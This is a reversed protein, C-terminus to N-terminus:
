AQPCPITQKSFIVQTYRHSWGAGALAAVGNMYGSCKIM